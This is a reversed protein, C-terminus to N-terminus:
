EFVITIGQTYQPHTLEYRWKVPVNYAVTVSGLESVPLTLRDSYKTSGGEHTKDLWLEVEKLEDVLISFNYSQGRNLDEWDGDFDIRYDPFFVDVEFESPYSFDIIKGRISPGVSVSPIRPIISVNLRTYGDEDMTKVVMDAWPKDQVTRDSLYFGISSAFCDKLPLVWTYNEGIHTFPLASWSESGKNYLAWIGTYLIDISTTITITVDDLNKVSWFGANWGIDFNYLQNHDIYTDSTFLWETKDVYVGTSPVPPPLPPLEGIPDEFPYRDIGDRGIYYPQSGDSPNGVCKHDSWYNGGIIPGNDWTNNAGTDDYGNPDNDVLNNHYVINNPASELKIGMEDNSTITNSRITNNHSTKLVIGDEDNCSITNNTILNCSTHGSFCIGDGDNFIIKNNIVKNNSSHYGMWIGDGTNRLITNNCIINNDSGDDMSIGDGNNQSITNNGITNNDSEDVEIGDEENSNVTNNLVINNSTDDDLSIGIFKNSVVKNDQITNNSAYGRLHIGYWNNSINNNKIVNKDSEVKIGADKLDYGSRDIKFGDIICGNAHVTIVSGSVGADVVPMGSGKLTLQKNLTLNENYTGNYVYITDNDQAADVADQIKTFNIGAGGDDDVYWTTASVAGILLSVLVGVLIIGAYRLVQLRNENRNRKLLGNKM